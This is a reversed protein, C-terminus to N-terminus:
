GGAVACVEDEIMAIHAAPGGFATAGLRAFLLAIEALSTKEDSAM